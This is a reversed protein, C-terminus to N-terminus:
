RKAMKMKLLAEITKQDLSHSDIEDLATDGSANMAKADTGADLLIQVCKVNRCDVLMVAKLELRGSASTRSRLSLRSRVYIGGIDATGYAGEIVVDPISMVSSRQNM